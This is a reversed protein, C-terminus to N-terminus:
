ESRMRRLLKPSLSVLIIVLSALVIHWLARQRAGTAGDIVSDAFYVYVITAPLIGAATSSVYPRVPVRSLGAAFNLVNFPVIPNVRLRFLALFSPAATLRDLKEVHRGLLQRIANGGLWRALAYGGLAGLFGGMWSYVVGLQWGFVAGGALTMVVPPIGIAATLAYGSVFWFPLWPLSRLGHLFQRARVADTLVGTRYAAYIALGIIGALIALRVIAPRRRVNRV